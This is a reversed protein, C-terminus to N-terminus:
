AAQLRALTAAQDIRECGNLGEFCGDPCFDGASGDDRCEETKMMAEREPGDGDLWPQRSVRLRTFNASYGDEPFFRKARGRTLARCLMFGLDEHGVSWGKM